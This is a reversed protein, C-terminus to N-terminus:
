RAPSPNGTKVHCASLLELTGIVGDPSDLTLLYQGESVIHSGAKFFGNACSRHICFGRLQLPSPLCSRTQACRSRFASQCYTAYSM